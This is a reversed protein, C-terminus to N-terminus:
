RGSPQPYQIRLLIDWARDPLLSRTWMLLRGATDVKYRSRPRSSSVAREIVRAVAEPGSGLM